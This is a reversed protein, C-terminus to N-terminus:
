TWLIKRLEAAAENSREPHNKLDLYAQVPHVCRVGDVITAGAFVGEDNPVVLWTNAGRPEDRFGLDRMLGASPLSELYVTSLRFGAHRTYLWAAPLATFAYHDGTRSLTEAMSGVQSDSDSAAVHGRIIMSHRDFRYEERWADLLTDPDGARIGHETREALSSELLKGVIRSTHGENLGSSQALARQQIAKRPEILLRRAVRSGKAGFATEPRGPRRFKNPHGLNQYFIGPAIIRANGSLDLWQINAKASWAQAEPSMYPVALLPIHKPPVDPNKASLRQALRRLNGISPSAKWEVAFSVGRISILADWDRGSKGEGQYRVKEKGIPVELIEALRDAVRRLPISMRANM